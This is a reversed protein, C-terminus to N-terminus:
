LQVTGPRWRGKSGSRPRRDLTNAANDPDAGFTVVGDIREYKGANGFSRGGAYPGRSMIEVQVVAMTVEKCRDMPSTLMM